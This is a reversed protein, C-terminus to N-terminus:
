GETFVRLRRPTVWVREGSAVGVQGLRDRGIAVRRSTSCCSRRSSPLAPVLSVRQRRGGSPQSPDRCTMIRRSQALWDPAFAIPTKWGV